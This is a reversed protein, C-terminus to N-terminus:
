VGDALQSLWPSSERGLGPRARVTGVTSCTSRARVFSGRALAVRLWRIKDEEAGLAAAHGRRRKPASSDGRQPAGVPARQAEVVQAVGEAREGDVVGRDDRHLHPHAVGVDLRRHALQV